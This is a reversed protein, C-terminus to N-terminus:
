RPLSWRGLEAFMTAASPHTYIKQTTGKVSHGLALSVCLQNAGAEFHLTACMHRLDYWRVRAPKAVPWLSRACEACQRARPSEKESFHLRCWRCHYTTSEIRVNADAMATRLVRTLKTDHRQQKGATDGFILDSPSAQIAELLDAAVAAVLPVERVVGTKTTERSHSRRVTIIARNFDVDEKRLAFLEGTRLGLHIAVRFLRRRDPRLKEQIKALEALTLVVGASRPERLRKALTFPNPKTWWGRASAFNIALRGASRVKNVTGPALRGHLLLRGLLDDVEGTRLTDETASFLPELRAAARAENAPSVRRPSVDKLWEQIIQGLTWQSSPARLLPALQLALQAIQEPHLSYSQSSEARPAAIIGQVPSEPPGDGSRAEEPASEGWRALKKKMDELDSM